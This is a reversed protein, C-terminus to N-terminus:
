AGSSRIMAEEDGLHVFRDPVDMGAAAIKIRVERVEVLRQAGQLRAAVVSTRHHVRGEYSYQSLPAVGLGGQTHDVLGQRRQAMAEADLSRRQPPSIVGVNRVRQAPPRIQGKVVAAPGRHNLSSSALLSSPFRGHGIQPLGEAYSLIGEPGFMRDRPIRQVLDAHRRPLRPVGLRRQFRQALRQPYPLEANKLPPPDRRAPPLFPERVRIGPRDDRRYVPLESPGNLGDPHQLIAEPRQPLLQALVGLPHGVHVDRQTVRMRVRRLPQFRPAM